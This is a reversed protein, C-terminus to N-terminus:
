KNGFVKFKIHQHKESAIKLGNITMNPSNDGGMLDIAITIKHNVDVMSLFNNLISASTPNSGVFRPNATGQM